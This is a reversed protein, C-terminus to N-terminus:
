ESVKDTTKFLIEYFLHLCAINNGDVTDQWCPIGCNQVPEHICSILLALLFPLTTFWSHQPFSLTKYKKRTSPFTVRYYTVSLCRMRDIASIKVWVAIHVNCDLGCRYVKGAINNEESEAWRPTNRYSLRFPISLKRSM